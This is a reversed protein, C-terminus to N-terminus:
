EVFSRNQHKAAGSEFDFFLELLVLPVDAHRYIVDLGYRRRLMMTSQM